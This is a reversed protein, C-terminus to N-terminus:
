FDEDDRKRKVHAAVVGVLCLLFLLADFAGSSENPQTSRANSDSPSDALAGASLACLAGFLGLGFLAIV